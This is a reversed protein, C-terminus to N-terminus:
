NLLALGSLIVLTGLAVNRYHRKGFRDFWRSGLWVGFLYLLMGPLAILVDGYGTTGATISIVGYWVAAIFAWGIILARAQAENYPGMLIAAVVVLAIYSGGFILGSVLGIIVLAVKGLETKYRRGSLLLLSAMLIISAITRRLLEPDLTILAWQGIPMMLLTPGVLWLTSHWDIKRYCSYFLYSSAVLDVVLIKGLIMTPPYFVTLIALMFAPGGFGTFGRILGAILAVSSTMAVGLEIGDM